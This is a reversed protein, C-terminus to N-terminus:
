RPEDSEGFSEVLRFLRVHSHAIAGCERMLSHAEPSDTLEQREEITRMRVMLMMANGETAEYLQASVFGRRGVIVNQVGDSIGRALEVRQAPDVTWFDILIPSEMPRMSDLDNTLRGSVYPEGSSPSRAPLEAAVAIPVNRPHAFLWGRPAIARHEIVHGRLIVAATRGIGLLEDRVGTLDRVQLATVPHELDAASAALQRTPENSPAEMDHPDLGSLAEYREGLVLQSARSLHLKHVHPKLVRLKRVLAESRHERRGRKM